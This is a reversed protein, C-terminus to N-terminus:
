PARGADADDLARQLAAALPAVNAALLRDDVGLGAIKHDRASKALARWRTPWHWEEATMFLHIEGAYPKPVYGGAAIVTTREVHQRYALAEASGEPPAEPEAMRHGLKDRFYAVREAWSGSTLARTHRVVYVCMQPAKRFMVPFPAGVLGLLDVVEGAARLQQAAEYAITGGACHGILLYPGKPQVTKIQAIEHAALAEITDLPASGDLGPPQVGFVPQDPHLARALPRLAYVDGGHGSLAFLPRRTGEPKIPVIASSARRMTEARRLYGLIEDKRAALQAKMEADLVGAPANLKLKDDELWVKVDRARLTSLLTATDTM